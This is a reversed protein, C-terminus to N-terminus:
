SYYFFLLPLVFIVKLATATDVPGNKSSLTPGLLASFVELGDAM